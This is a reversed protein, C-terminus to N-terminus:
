QVKVSECKLCGSNSLLFLCGRQLWLKWHLRRPHDRSQPDTASEEQRSAGTSSTKRIKRPTCRFTVTDRDGHCCWGAEDTESHSSSEQDGHRKFTCPSSLRPMGKPWFGLDGWHYSWIDGFFLVRPQKVLAVANWKRFQQTTWSYPVSSIDVPKHRVGHLSHGTPNWVENYM